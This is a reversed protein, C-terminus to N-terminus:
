ILSSMFHVTFMSRSFPPSILRQGTELAWAIFQSRNNVNCADYVVAFDTLISVVASDKVLYAFNLFNFDIVFFDIAGLCQM